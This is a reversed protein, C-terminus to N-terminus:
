LSPDFPLSYKLNFRLMAILRRKKKALSIYQQPRFPNNEPDFNAVFSRLSSLGHAEATLDSLAIDRARQQFIAKFVKFNAPPNEFCSGFGFANLINRLSHLWPKKGEDLMMKQHALCSHILSGEPKVIIRGWFQIAREFMMVQTRVFGFDLFTASNPAGGAIGLVQKLYRNAPKDFEQAWNITGSVSILPRRSNDFRIGFIESAYLIIPQIMTLYLNVFIKAPLNLNRLRFKSLPFLARNGKSIAKKKHSSWSHNYAWHVGLYKMERVVEM